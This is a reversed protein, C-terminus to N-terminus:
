SAGTTIYISYEIDEQDLQDARITVEYSGFPQAEGNCVIAIRGTTPNQNETCVANQNRYYEVLNNVTASVVYHSDVFFPSTKDLPKQDTYSTRYDLQSNPYIPASPIVRETFIAFVLVLIILILLPLLLLKRSRM